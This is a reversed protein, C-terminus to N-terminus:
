WIALMVKLKSKLFAGGKYLLKVALNVGERKIFDRGLQILPNDGVAM